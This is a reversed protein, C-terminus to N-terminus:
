AFVAADNGFVQIPLGTSPKLTQIELPYRVADDNGFKISPLTLLTGRPVLIRQSTVGDSWDAGFIWEPLTASDPITLSYAGLPTVSLATGSTTTLATGGATASLTLTTLSGVATVYYTTGAVIGTSTTIAGLQVTAGVVLGHATATTVVGGTGITVAGGVAIGTNVVTAGGWALSTVTANAELGEFTLKRTLETAILRVTELTQWAPIAKTKLSQGMTFGDTVFGLQTYSAPWATTSDTPLASGPAARWIAGTGAVRVNGANPSGM